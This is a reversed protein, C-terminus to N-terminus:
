EIAVVCCRHVGGEYLIELWSWVEYRECDFENGDRKWYGDEASNVPQGKITKPESYEM